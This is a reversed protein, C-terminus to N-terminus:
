KVVIMSVRLFLSAVCNAEIRVAHKRTERARFNNFYVAKMVLGYSQDSSTKPTHRGSAVTNDFRNLVNTPPKDHAHLPMRLANELFIGERSRQEAGKDLFRPLRFGM